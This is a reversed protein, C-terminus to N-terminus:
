TNIHKIKMIRYFYVFNTVFLFGVIGITIENLYPFHFFTWYILFVSLVFKPVQSISGGAPFFIWKSYNKYHVVNNYITVFVILMLDLYIFLAGVWGAILNSLILGVILASIFLNGVFVDIFKGKDSDREQYRALTGDLADTLGHGLLIFPIWIYKEYVLVPIAALGLIVSFSSVANPTLGIKDFVFLIPKLIKMRLKVFSKYIRNELNKM